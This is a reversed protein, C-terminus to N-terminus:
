CDRVTVVSFSRGHQTIQFPRAVHQRIDIAIGSTSIQAIRKNLFLPTQRNPTPTHPQFNYFRTELLFSTRHGISQRRRVVYADILSEDNDILRSDKSIWEPSM